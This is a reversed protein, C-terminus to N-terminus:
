RALEKKNLFVPLVRSYKALESGTLDCSTQTAIAIRCHKRTFLPIMWGVARLKGGDLIGVCFAEIPEPGPPSCFGFPRGFILALTSDTRLGHSYLGIVM